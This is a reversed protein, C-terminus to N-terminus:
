SVRVGVFHIGIFLNFLWCLFLLWLNLFFGLRLHFLLRFRMYLVFRLGLNLFLLRLRIVTEVDISIVKISVELISKTLACILFLFQVIFDLINVHLNLLWM